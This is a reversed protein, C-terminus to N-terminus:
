SCSGSCYGQSTGRGGCVGRGQVSGINEKCQVLFYGFKKWLLIELKQFATGERFILCLTISYNLLILLLAVTSVNFWVLVEKIEKFYLLQIFIKQCYDYFNYKVCSIVFTSEFIVKLKIFTIYDVVFLSNFYWVFNVLLYHINWIIYIIDCKSLTNNIFWCYFWALCIHYFYIKPM